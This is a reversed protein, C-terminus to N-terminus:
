RAIKKILELLQQIDSYSPNQLTPPQSNIAQTNSPQSNIAQTNRNIEERSQSIDRENQRIDKKIQQIDEKNQTITARLTEMDRIHQNLKGFQRPLYRIISFLVGGVIVVTAVITAIDGADSLTM